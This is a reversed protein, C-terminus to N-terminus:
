FNLLNECASAAFLLYKMSTKHRLPIELSQVDGYITRLARAERCAWDTHINMLTSRYREYQSDAESIRFWKCKQLIFTNIVKYSVMFYGIQAGGPHGALNPFNPSRKHCKLFCTRTCNSACVIVRCYWWLRREVIYKDAGSGTISFLRSDSQLRSWEANGRVSVKSKQVPVHMNTQCTVAYVCINCSGKLQISGYNSM